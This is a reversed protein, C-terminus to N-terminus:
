SWIWWLINVLTLFKSLLKCWSAAFAIDFTFSDGSVINVFAASFILSVLNDVICDLSGLFAKYSVTDTFGWKGSYCSKHLMASKELTRQTQGIITWRVESNKSVSKLAVQFPQPSQRRLQALWNLIYRLPLPLPTSIFKARVSWM